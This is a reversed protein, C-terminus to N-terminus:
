EELAERLDALVTSSIPHEAVVALDIDSAARADGRARSGFLVLRAGERKLLSALIREIAFRDLPNLPLKAVRPM